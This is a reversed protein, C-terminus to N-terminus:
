SASYDFQLKPSAENPSAHEVSTLMASRFFVEVSGSDPYVLELEFVQMHDVARINEITGGTVSFHVAQPMGTVNHSFTATTFCSSALM